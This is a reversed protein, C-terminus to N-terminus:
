DLFYGTDEHAGGASGHTTDAFAGCDILTPPEYVAATKEETTPGLPEHAASM